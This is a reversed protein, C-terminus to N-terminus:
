FGNIGFVIEEEDDLRYCIKMYKTGSNNGSGTEASTLEVSVAEFEDIMIWESRWIVESNIDCAEFRGGSTTVTKAYDGEDTLLVNGYELSWTDIGDFDYQLSDASYGQIGKGPITFSESWIVQGFAPIFMWLSCITLIKLKLHNM